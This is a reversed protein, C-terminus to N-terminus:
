EPASTSSTGAGRSSPRQRARHPARRRGRRRRRRRCPLGQGNADFTGAPYPGSLAVGRPSRATSLPYRRWVGEPGRVHLWAERVDGTTLNTIRATVVADKNPDVVKPTSVLALEPLGSGLGLNFMAYRQNGGPLDIVQVAASEGRWAVRVSHPGRPLEISLPTRGRPEADIYVQGGSLAATGQDDALQAQVTLMGTSPSTMPEAVVRATEHVRVQVTQAWSPMGPGVFAVEHLGPALSDLDVPVYGQDRSDISVRLPLSPDDSRVELAGSMPYVPHLNEGKRGTMAFTASGLDPLSLEIRHDGPPLDVRTPTRRAIDRGDIRVWAGNPRSDITADFRAGGLGIARMWRPTQASSRPADHGLGGIAWGVAFLALVGVAWPWLTRWHRRPPVSAADATPWARPASPADAAVTEPASERPRAWDPLTFAGSQGPAPEIAPPTRAPIERREPEVRGGVHTEIVLPAEGDTVELPSHLPPPGEFAERPADTQAQHRLHPPLSAISFGDGAGVPEHTVDMPGSSPSVDPALTPLRSIQDDSLGAPTRSEVVFAEPPSEPRSDEAERAPVATSPPLTAEPAQIGPMEAGTGPAEAPSAKPGQLLVGSDAPWVTSTPDAAPATPYEPVAQTASEFVSTFEVREPQPEPRPESKRGFRILKALWRQIPHPETPPLEPLPDTSALLRPAPPVHEVPDPAEQGALRRSELVPLETPQVLTAPPPAPLAQSPVPPPGSIPAGPLEPPLPPLPTVPDPRTPLRPILVTEERRSAGPDVGQPDFVPPQRVDPPPAELPFRWDRTPVLDLPRALSPRDMPLEPPLPPAPAAAVPPALPPREVPAPGVPPALNSVISIPAGARAGSGAPSTDRERSYSAQLFVLPPEDKGGGWDLQIEIQDGPSYSTAFAERGADDRVRVWIPETPRGNVTVILNADGVWGFAPGDPSTVFAVSCPAPHAGPSWLEAHTFLMGTLTHHLLPPIARTSTDRGSTETAVGVVDNLWGSAEPISFGQPVGLLVVEIGPAHTSATLVEGTTRSSIAWKPSGASVVKM